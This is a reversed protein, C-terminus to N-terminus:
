FNDQYRLVLRLSKTCNAYSTYTYYYHGCRYPKYYAYGSNNSDTSSAGRWSIKISNKIDYDKPTFSFVSLSSKYTSGFYYCADSANCCLGYLGLENTYGEDVHIQPNDAIAIVYSPRLDNDWNSIYQRCNAIQDYGKSKQGGWAAYEWESEYPIDLPLNTIQKLKSTFKTLIEELGLQFANANSSLNSGDRTVFTYLGKSVVDTSLCPMPPEYGMVAEFLENSVQTKMIYYPYMHVTVQDSSSGLALDGGDVKVMEDLYKLIIQRREASISDPFQLDSFPNVEAWNNAGETGPVTLYGSVGKQLNADTLTHTFANKNNMVLLRKNYHKNAETTTLYIYDSYYKGDEAATKSIFVPHKEWKEDTFSNDINYSTNVCPGSVYLTDGPNGQLRIRSNAPSLSATASLSSGDYTFIGTSDCYIPTKGNLTVSTIGESEPSEFYYAILTGSQTQAINGSYQLTWKNTSENYTATGYLNTGNGTFTLRLKDGNSWSKSQARTGKAQDFSPCSAHLDLDITHINTNPTTNDVLEDQSCATFMFTAGILLQPIIYFRNM